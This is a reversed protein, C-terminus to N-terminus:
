REHSDEVTFVEHTHDAGVRRFLELAAAPEASARAAMLADRNQWLSQIRWTGNQGRLLETRLLGEPMAGGTLERFGSTLEREREPDVAASVSTILRRTM